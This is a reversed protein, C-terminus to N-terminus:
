KFCGLQCARIRIKMEDCLSGIRKPPTNTRAALALMAKCAVKGDVAKGRIARRLEEDTM